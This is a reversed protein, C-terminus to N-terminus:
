GRVVPAAAREAEIRRRLREIIETSLEGAKIARALLRLAALTERGIARSSFAAVLEAALRKLDAARGAELYVCALDLSSLAADYIREVVLCADRSSSFAEIADDYRAQGLAIRGQLNRLVAAAHPDDLAEYADLNSALIRDADEWCQLECLCLVRLTAATTLQYLDDALELQAGVGDLCELAETPRGRENLLMAQHVVVRAAGEDDGAERYLLLARELLGEAQALDRQDLRLSVELSAVEAEAAPEALPRAALEARLEVFAADAAPLDGAIRLANARHAAARVRLAHVDPHPFPAGTPTRRLVLPVLAALNEAEAPETRVRARSEDLLLIALGVSRFRRHAGRIRGARRHAPLRLLAWLDRMWGRRREDQLLGIEEELRAAVADFGPPDALALRAGPTPALADIEAIRESLRDHEGAVLDWARRCEPCGSALADLIMRGVVSPRQRGNFTHVYHHSTVHRHPGM